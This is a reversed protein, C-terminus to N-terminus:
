EVCYKRKSEMVSTHQVYFVLGCTETGVSGKLRYPLKSFHFDSFKGPLVRYMTAPVEPVTQELITKRKDLSLHMLSSDGLYVIDFAV